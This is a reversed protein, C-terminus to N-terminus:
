TAISLSRPLLKWVDDELNFTRAIILIIDRSLDSKDRERDHQWPSSTRSMPYDTM